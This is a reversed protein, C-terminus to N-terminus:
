ALSADLVSSFAALVAAVARRRHSVAAKQERSVSGFCADLETSWFLPDYGFGGTGCPAELIRGATVGSAVLEGGAWVLAASCAYHAGRECAGSIARLLRANNSADLSEGSAGVEGGWRKSRVGPGGSLADVCLGSDEALVVRGEGRAHFYRAKALANEEFTEGSEVFEEEPLEVMGAQALSEGDYGLASLLPTLERLKGASRTALLLRPRAGGAM